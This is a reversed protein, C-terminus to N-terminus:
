YLYCYFEQMSNIGALIVSSESDSSKCFLSGDKIVISDTFSYDVALCETCKVSPELDFTSLRLVDESNLDCSYRSWSILDRIRKSLSSVTILLSFTAKSM